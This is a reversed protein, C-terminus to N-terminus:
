PVVQDLIDVGLHQQVSWVTLKLLLRFRVSSDCEGGGGSRM